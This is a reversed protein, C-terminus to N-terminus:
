EEAAEADSEEELPAPPNPEAAGPLRTQEFLSAVDVVQTLIAEVREPEEIAPFYVPLLRREFYCLELFLAAGERFATSLDGPPLLLKEQRLVRVAEEVEVPGIRQRLERLRPRPLAGNAELDVFATDLRSHFLLRWYRLLVQEPVDDAG